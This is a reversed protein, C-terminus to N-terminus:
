CKSRIWEFPVHFEDLFDCFIPHIIPFFGILTWLFTHELASHFQGVVKNIKYKKGIESIDEPYGAVLKGIEENLWPCREPTHKGYIGYLAM